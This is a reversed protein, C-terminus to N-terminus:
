NELSCMAAAAELRDSISADNYEAVDLVKDPMIVGLPRRHGAIIGMSSTGCGSCYSSKGYFDAKGLYVGHPCKGSSTSSTVQALSGAQGSNSALEQREEM